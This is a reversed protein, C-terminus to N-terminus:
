RSSGFGTEPIRGVDGGASSRINIAVVGDGPVSTVLFPKMYQGGPLVILVEFPPVPDPLWVFRGDTDTRQAGTLGLVSVEAGVIPAGTAEMVVRGQLGLASGAAPFLAFAAAFGPAVVRHLVPGTPPSRGM